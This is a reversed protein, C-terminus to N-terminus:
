GINSSLIKDLEIKYIKFTSSPYKHHLDDHFYPSLEYIGVENQVLKILKKKQFFLIIQRLQATEDDVEVEKPVAVFHGHRSIEALYPNIINLIKKTSKNNIINDLEEESLSNDKGEKAYLTIILILLDIIFGASVAKIDDDTIDDPNEMNNSSKIKISPNFIAFLVSTTRAFLKNKDNIDFFHLGDIEKLNKILGIVRNAGDTFERDMCSQTTSRGTHKHIVTIHQRNTGSRSILMRTLEGLIPNKFFEINIEKIRSNVERNFAVVDKKPDFRQIYSSVERIENNLQTQLLLIKESFKKTKMSDDARLWTYYGEGAGVSPNCTRGYLRERESTIASKNSLTILEAGMAKFSSRAVILSEKVRTLQLESSRKAYNEASFTEYWFSFSFAVSITTTILYASLILLSKMWKEKFLDSIYFKNISFVLIYQLVGILIAMFIMAMEESTGSIKLLGSYSTYFSIFSLIFVILGIKAKDMIKKVKEKKIM